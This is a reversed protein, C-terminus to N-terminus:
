AAPVPDASVGDLRVRIGGSGGPLAAGIRTRGVATVNCEQAQADWYVPAGTAFNAGAAKPLDFVGKVELDFTEGEPASQAAVGFLTGILYGGGSVVGGVPAPLTVTDGHQVFNRM